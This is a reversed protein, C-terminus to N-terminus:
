FLGKLFRVKAGLIKMLKIRSSFLEGSSSISPSIKGDEILGDEFSEGLDPNNNNNRNMNSHETNFDMAVPMNKSYSDM